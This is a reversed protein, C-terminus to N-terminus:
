RFWRPWSLRDTPLVQFTREWFAGLGVRDVPKHTVSSVRVLIVVGAVPGVPVVVM